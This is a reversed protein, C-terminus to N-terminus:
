SARELTWTAEVMEAEGPLTALDSPGRGGEIASWRIIGRVDILFHGTLQTGHAAFIAEDVDTLEFGDKRNLVTNSELPAAPEDLEGTPNIRAATMEEVTARYPWQRPADPAVIEIRPLHFARHAALDPDALVPFPVPRYGFYLRARELPTNVVALTQVGAAGLQEHISSLRVLQRRCFPCHLGRYIGILVASKGAYDRLSVTGDRNVATLTIEPARDGPQLPRTLTHM